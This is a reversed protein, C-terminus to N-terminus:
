IFWSCPKWPQTVESEMDIDTDVGSDESDTVVAACQINSLVSAAIIVSILSRLKGDWEM